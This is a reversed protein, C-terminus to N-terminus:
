NFYKQKIELQKEHVLPLDKRNLQFQICKTRRGFLISSTVDISNPLWFERTRNISSVFFNRNSKTWNGFWNFLLGVSQTHNLKISKQNLKTWNAIGPMSNHPVAPTHKFVQHKNCSSIRGLILINLISKKRHPVWMEYNNKKNCHCCCIWWNGVLFKVYFSVAKIFFSENELVERKKQGWRGEDRAM